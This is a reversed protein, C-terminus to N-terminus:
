DTYDIGVSDFGLVSDKTPLNSFIIDEDYPYIRGKRDEKALYKTADLSPWFMVRLFLLGMVLTVKYSKQLDARWKEAKTEPGYILFNQSQVWELNPEPQPTSLGINIEVGAPPIGADYFHRFHEWPIIQRYNSGANIMAATKFAWRSITTCETHGWVAATAGNTIADKLPTAASLELNNMWGSNCDQCVQGFVLTEGPHRRTSVDGPPMMQLHSGRYHDSTSGGIFIQLWRPIIHEKGRPRSRGCFVCIVEKAM